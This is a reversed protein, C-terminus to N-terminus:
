RRGGERGGDRGEELKSLSFFPLKKFHYFESTFDDLKSTQPKEKNSMPNKQNQPKKLVSWDRKYIQETKRLDSQINRPIQRSWRPKQFM